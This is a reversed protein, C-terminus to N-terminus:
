RFFPSLGVLALQPSLELSLQELLAQPLLSLQSALTWAQPAPLVLSQASFLQVSFLEASSPQKSVWSSIL